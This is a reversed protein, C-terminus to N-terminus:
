EDLKDSCSDSTYLEEANSRNTNLPLAVENNDTDNNNFKQNLIENAVTKLINEIDEESEDDEDDDDFTDNFSDQSSDDDPIDLDFCDNIFKEQEIYYKSLKSLLRHYHIVAHVPNNIESFITNSILKSLNYRKQLCSRKRPAFICCDSILEDNTMKKEDLLLQQQFDKVINNITDNSANNSNSLLQFYENWKSNSNSKFYKSNM